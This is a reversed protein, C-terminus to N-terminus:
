MFHVIAIVVAFGLILAGVAVEVFGTSYGHEPSSPDSM